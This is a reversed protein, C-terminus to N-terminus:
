PRDERPQKALWARLEVEIRGLEERQHTIASLLDSLHGPKVEMRGSLLQRVSDPRVDLVTALAARWDGGPNMTQGAEALLDAATKPKKGNHNSPTSM